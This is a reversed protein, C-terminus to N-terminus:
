RLDMGLGTEPDYLRMSRQAFSLQITDGPAVEVEPPVQVKLEQDAV